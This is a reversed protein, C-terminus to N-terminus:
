LDDARHLRQRGVDPLLQLQGRPPRVDSVTLTRLNAPWELNPMAEYAYVAVFDANGSGALANVPLEEGPKAVEEQVRPSLLFTKGLGLKAM